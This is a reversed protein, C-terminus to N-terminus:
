QVDHETFSGIIAGRGIIAGGGRELLQGGGAGKRFFLRGGSWYDGGGGVHLGDNRHIAENGIVFKLM